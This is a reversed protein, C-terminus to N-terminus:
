AARARRRELHSVKRRGTAKSKGTFVGRAKVPGLGDQKDFARSLGLEQRLGDKVTGPLQADHDAKLQATTRAPRGRARGADAALPAFLLLALTAAAAAAARLM